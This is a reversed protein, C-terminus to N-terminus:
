FIQLLGSTTNPPTSFFFVRLRQKSELYFLPCWECRIRPCGYNPCLSLDDQASDSVVRLGSFFQLFLTGPRLPLM